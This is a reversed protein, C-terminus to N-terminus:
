RARGKPVHARPRMTVNTDPRPGFKEKLWPYDDSRIRFRARLDMLKVDADLWADRLRKMGAENLPIM